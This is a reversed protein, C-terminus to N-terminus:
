TSSRNGSKVNRRSYALRFELSDTSCHQGTHVIVQGATPMRARLEHFVPAAKMFNPRAGVVYLVETV